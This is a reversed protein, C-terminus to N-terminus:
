SLLQQFHVYEDALKKLQYEKVQLELLGLVKKFEGSMSEVDVGAVKEVEDRKIKFNELSYQIKHHMNSISEVLDETNKKTIKRMKRLIILISSISNEWRDYRENYGDYMEQFFDTLNEYINDRKSFSPKKVTAPVQPQSIIEEPPPPPPLADRELTIEETKKVETSKEVQERQAIPVDELMYAEAIKKKSEHSLQPALRQTDKKPPIYAKDESVGKLLGQLDAGTKESSKLTKESTKLANDLSYTGVIDSKVDKKKKKAM